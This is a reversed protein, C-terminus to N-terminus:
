RVMPAVVPAVLLVVATVFGLLWPRKTDSPPYARSVLLAPVAFAIHTIALAAWPGTTTLHFPLLNAAMWGAYVGEVVGIGIAMGFAVRDRSRTTLFWLVLLYSLLAVGISPLEDVLTGAIALQLIRFDVLLRAVLAVLLTGRIWNRAREITKLAEAMRSPGREASERGDPEREEPPPRRKREPEGVPAPPPPLMDATFDPHSM